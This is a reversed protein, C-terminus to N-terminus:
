ARGRGRKRRAWEFGALGIAALISIAGGATRDPTREFRVEVRHRGAAVPVLIEGTIERTRLETERGDVRGRWAPYNLRKLALVEAGAFDTEVSIKEATWTDIWAEDKTAATTRGGASEAVAVKPAGARLESRDCGLPAYEDTGEYGAGSRVSDRIFHADETDWWTDRAAATGCAVVALGIAALWARRGRTGGPAAAAVFIAFVLGLPGMWRWPFQVYQLKPVWRWLPDTFSFMMAIGVGGVAAMAWWLERMEERKRAAMVGAVGALFIMALAVFSMKLNFFEFEPDAGRIFLFNKAPDLSSAVAQGIQVWKQEWAAPVLYFAALAFGAAMATAGPALPKWSRLAACGAALVLCASYTALVGAPANSLWIAAFAIATWAVGSWGRRVVRLAGMVLLPFFIAAFLEAYDSRYYVIALQYPNSAYFVGAATAEGEPLWDRALARASLGAAVLAMWVFALPTAAWPMVRGLLAGFMWSLPPYFVFRPEGYGWNAWEAWRPYVIGEKWQGAADVWSALHFQIDHGSPSGWWPSPLIVVTAGAALLLAAWVWNWGARPNGPAAGAEERAEIYTAESM